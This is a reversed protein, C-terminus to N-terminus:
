ILTNNVNNRTITGTTEIGRLLLKEKLDINYGRLIWLLIACIILGAGIIWFERKVKKM